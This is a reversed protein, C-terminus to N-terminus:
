IYKQDSNSLCFLTKDKILSPRILDTKIRCHETLYKDHVRGGWAKCVFRIM